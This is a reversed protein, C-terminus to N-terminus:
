AITIDTKPSGLSKPGQIRVRKVKAELVHKGSATVVDEILRSYIRRKGYGLIYISEPGSPTLYPKEEDAFSINLSLTEFIIPHRLTESVTINPGYRTIQYLLESLVAFMNGSADKSDNDWHGFKSLTLNVKFDISLHRVCSSPCPLSMWALTYEDNNLLLQMSWTQDAASTHYSPMHYLQRMEDAILGNTRMLNLWDFSITSIHLITPLEAGCHLEHRRTTSESKTDPFSFVNAYIIDRLERPLDMLSHPQPITHSLTYAMTKYTHLKNARRVTSRTHNIKYSQDQIVSRTHNVEYLVFFYSAGCILSIYRRLLLFCRPM